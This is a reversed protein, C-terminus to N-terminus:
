TALTVARVVQEAPSFYLVVFAVSNNFGHAIACPVVSRTRNYLWALVLGMAFIPAMAPLNLHVLAFGAASALYAWREGLATLYARCIYGRFYLEEVLPGFIGVVSLLVLYQPLELRRIWLFDELQTQRIGFLAALVFQVAAGALFLLPGTVLGIALLGPLARLFAVPNALLPNGRALRTLAIFALLTLELSLAAVLFGSVSQVGGPPRLIRFLPIGVLNSALVVIVVSGLVSRHVSREPYALGLL